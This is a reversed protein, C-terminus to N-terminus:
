PTSRPPRTNIHLAVNDVNLIYQQCATSVRIYKYIHYYAMKDVFLLFCCVLLILVIFLLPIGRWILLVINRNATSM